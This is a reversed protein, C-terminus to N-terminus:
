LLQIVHNLWPGVISVNAAQTVKPKGNFSVSLGAIKMMELDNAGDGIAIVNSLPINFKRSLAILYDAKAQADVVDGVINGTLTDNKIELNNAKFNEIELKQCLPELIQTFGGSVLAFYHNQKRLHQILDIGGDSVEVEQSVEKLVSVPLGKLTAVRLKLSEKFDIEGNMARETVAAVEAQKGAFGALLDIVEQKIFTSDVDSFVLMPLQTNRDSESILQKIEDSINISQYSNSADLIM